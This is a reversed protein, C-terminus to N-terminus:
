LRIHKKKIVKLKQVYFFWFFFVKETSKLIAIQWVAGWWGVFFDGAAEEKLSTKRSEKIDTEENQHCSFYSMCYNQRSNCLQWLCKWLIYHQSNTIKWFLFESKQAGRVDNSQFSISGFRNPVDLISVVHVIHPSSTLFCVNESKYLEIEKNWWEWIENDKNEEM